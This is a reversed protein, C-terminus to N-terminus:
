HGPVPRKPRHDPPTMVEEVLLLAGGEPPEAHKAPREVKRSGCSNHGSALHRHGSIDDSAEGVLAEEFSAAVPADSAPPHEVSNTGVRALLQGGAVIPQRRLLSM